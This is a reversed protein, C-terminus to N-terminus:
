KVYFNLSIRLLKDIVFESRTLNLYSQADPNGFADQEQSYYDNSKEGTGDKIKEIIHTKGRKKWIAATNYEIGLSLPLDSIWFNIGVLPGAGLIFGPTSKESHAYLGDTYNYNERRAIKEFGFYANAGLYIDFVNRNRFHYEFGPIILFERENRMLDKFTVSSGTLATDVDGVTRIYRRDSDYGLRLAFNEKLYYKLIIGDFIDPGTDTTDKQFFKFAISASKTGKVPRNGMMFASSDVARGSLQAHALQASFGIFIFGILYFVKLM